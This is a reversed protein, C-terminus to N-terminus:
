SPREVEAVCEIEVLSDLPLKAVQITSRAPKHDGFYETYIENLVQFDGLDKLFVTTKVINKLEMTDAELVAKLNKFVQHVQAGIEDGVIEGNSPDIPIVGSTFLYDGSRMAQSYPGIAAPAKDTAIPRM